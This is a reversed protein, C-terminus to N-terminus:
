MAVLASTHPVTRTCPRSAYWLMRLQHSQLTEVHVVWRVEFDIDVGDLSFTQVFSAIGAANLAGWNTYTAGGVAVLVMTGPNAKKLLAIADKIVSAESSFQIGTGAWTVGAGSSYTTDACLASPHWYNHTHMTCVDHPRLSCVNSNFAAGQAEMGPKMFSIYVHSVYSPLKALASNAGSGSWSDSWSEYYAGYSM